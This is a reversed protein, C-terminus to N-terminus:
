GFQAILKKGDVNVAGHVYRLIRHSSYQLVKKFTNKCSFVREIVYVHFRDTEHVDDSPVRRHSCPRAQDAGTSGPSSDTDTRACPSALM